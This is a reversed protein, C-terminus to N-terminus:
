IGYNGAADVGEDSEAEGENVGGGFEEVKGMSGDVCGAGIKRIKVRRIAAQRKACTYGKGDEGCCEEAHAGFESNILGQSLFFRM